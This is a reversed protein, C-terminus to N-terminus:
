AWEQRPTLWSQGTREFDSPTPTPHGTGLTAPASRPFVVNIMRRAVVKQKELFHQKPRTQGLVRVCVCVRECVCVHPRELKSAATM